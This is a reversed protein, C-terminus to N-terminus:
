PKKETTRDWYVEYPGQFVKYFPALHVTLHSTTDPLHFASSTFTNPQDSVPQLSALLHPQDETVTPFPGRAKVPAALVLPGNLIAFRNPDDKFAVTRLHFPMTVEVTDGSKWTREVVAYSGPSGANALKAGNVAIEFGKTAWGPHRIKLALPMPKECTFVLKTAPVDPYRTEQRLTLGKAKWNLQSAIFLNVYLEHNNHFYISDGYKSHNEVGTGTCCWFSDTPTNYRKHSGSRLPVYYCMMGTEPNQSALIHNYLAREYYDAYAVRPDWCFLHRTLKLMNYTNCTETTNPGMHSLRNTPTFHEGDSNGGIVYSRNSVVTDWFFRAATKFPENGTLEYQRAVGIFKPIQTNAHLGTLKDERHEAPDIVRHHDFRLSIELYKKEGTLAYLNALTENMGGQETELMAQMQADTLRSNRAIVWDGFKKAVELAQRNGCYVYMDELGAFIKHLTYYPAWVRERKEVRTIFSEPFASLYGNGLKAQCEALGAVIADGREKFRADGTSAYMQACASMFHGVFHGRLECNPAEWGGLPKADTPLGANVRFNRLLRNVDLSLLYQGDLEMAHKFPGDLLRVEELPFARVQLPVVPQVKLDPNPSALDDALATRLCPLAATLTLLLPIQIRSRM